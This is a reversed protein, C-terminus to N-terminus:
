QPFVGPRVTARSLRDYVVGICVADLVTGIVSQLSVLFVMSFCGNFMPEGPAGSWFSQYGITMMTTVSFMFADSFGTFKMRHHSKYRSCYLQFTYLVAEGALIKPLTFHLPFCCFDPLISANMAISLFFGPIFLLKLGEQRAVEM